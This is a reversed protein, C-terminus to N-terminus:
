SHVNEIKRDWEKCIKKLELVPDLKRNKWIGRVSEWAKMRNRIIKRDWEKRIERQWKAPDPGGRGKLTGALKLLAEASKSTKLPVIYINIIDGNDSLIAKRRNLKKQLRSPLKIAGDKIELTTTM